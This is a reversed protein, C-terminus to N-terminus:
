FNTATEQSIYIDHTMHTSIGGRKASHFFHITPQITSKTTMLALFNILLPRQTTSAIIYGVPRPPPCSNGLYYYLAFATKRHMRYRLKVKISYPVVLPKYLRLPCQKRSADLHLTKSWLFTEISGVVGRARPILYSALNTYCSYQPTVGSQEKSDDDQMTAATGKEVWKGGWPISIEKEKSSFCFLPFHRRRRRRKWGLMCGNANCANKVPM